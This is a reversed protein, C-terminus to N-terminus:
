IKGTLLTFIGFIFLIIIPPAILFLLNLRSHNASSSDFKNVTRGFLFGSIAGIITTLTLFLILVIKPTNQFIQIQVGIIMGGIFLGALVGLITYLILRM